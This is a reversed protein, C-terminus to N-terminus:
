RRALFRALTEKAAEVDGAALYGLAVAAVERPGNGDQKVKATRPPNIRGAM